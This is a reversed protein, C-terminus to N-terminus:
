LGHEAVLSAVVILLGHVAALSYGGSEAVLPLKHAATFVWSLWFYFLGFYITNTKKKKLFYALKQEAMTGTYRLYVFPQPPSPSVSFLM